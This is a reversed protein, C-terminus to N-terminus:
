PCVCMCVGIGVFSSEGGHFSTAQNLLEYFICQM